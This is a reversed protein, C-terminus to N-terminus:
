AAMEQAAVFVPITLEPSLEEFRVEVPMGIRADSGAVDVLNSVFRLGQQEALEVVAVIYPMRDAFFPHFAKETETFSYLTGRGSVEEWALDFSLCRRCVPRPLHVYLGCARCRQIVLAHRSAAEWFPATLPDPPPMPPRPHDM